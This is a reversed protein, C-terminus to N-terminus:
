QAAAGGRPRVAIRIEGSSGKAAGEEPRYSAFGTAGLSEGSLGCRQMEIVTGAARAASLQWVSPYDRRFVVPVKEATTHGSVEVDAKVSLAKIAKAVACVVKVGQRSPTTDKAGFLAKDDVRIVSEAGRKEISVTKTKLFSSLAEELEQNVKAVREEAAKKEQETKEAAEKLSDRESQLSVVDETTKKLQDATGSLESHSGRYKENLLMHAKRLPVYYGLLLGVLGLLSVAAVVRTVLASGSSGAKKPPASLGSDNFDAFPDRAM